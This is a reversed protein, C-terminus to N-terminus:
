RKKKSELSLYKEFMEQVYKQCNRYGQKLGDHYGKTTQGDNISVKGIGQSGLTRNYIQYGLDIYRKIYEQEKKDLEHELFYYVIIEWGHPNTQLNYLKRKKLSIDIRQSYGLLHSVLRDEIHKAQGIYAYKINNEDIRRLVYIGSKNNILCYSSAALEKKAREKMAYLKRYNTPM